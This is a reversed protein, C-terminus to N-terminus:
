RAEVECDRERISCMVLWVGPAEGWVWGATVARASAAFRGSQVVKSSM